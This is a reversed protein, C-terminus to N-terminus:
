LHSAKLFNRILAPLDAGPQDQIYSDTINIIKVNYGLSKKWLIFDSSTIENAINDTTLIVYNISNNCNDKSIKNTNIPNSSKLYTTKIPNSAFPSIQYITIEESETNKNNIDAISLNNIMILFVALIIVIYKKM